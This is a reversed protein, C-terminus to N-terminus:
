PRVAIHWQNKIGWKICPWQTSIVRRSLCKIRSQNERRILDMYCSQSKLFMTRKNTSTNQNIRTWIECHKGSSMETHTWFRFPLRMKHYAIASVSYMLQKKASDEILCSP